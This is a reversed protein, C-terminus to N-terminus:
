RRGTSPGSEVGTLQELYRSAETSGLKIARKYWERAQAVDSAFGVAGWKESYVPDFTMGLELAAQANGTGAAQRLLLRAAATDGNDLFHKFLTSTESPDLTPITPSQKALDPQPALHEENKRMWELRVTQSDILWDGPSRLDIAAVMFGVFDKPAYVLANDVARASMQWSTLGLPTGVSLSTGIPLGALIVTDGGSEDTLSVGLPLPENVFGRQAKVVLRPLKAPTRARSSGEFLPTMLGSIDASWKRVANPFTILTVGVAVIAVLIGVLLRGLPTQSPPRPVGPSRSLRHALHAVAVERELPRSKVPELDLQPGGIGPAMPPADASRPTIPPAHTIGSPEPVIPPSAPAVPSTDSLPDDIGDEGGIAPGTLMSVIEAVSKGRLDLRQSELEAGSPKGIQDKLHTHGDNGMTQSGSARTAWGHDIRSFVVVRKRCVGRQKDNHDCRKDAPALFRGRRDM